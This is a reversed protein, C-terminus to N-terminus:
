DEDDSGDTVYKDNGSVVVSFTGGTEALRGFFEGLSSSETLVRDAALGPGGDRPLLRDAAVGYFSALRQLRPVSIAREGREYAGLVSAKFEQGSATEVDRLTLRRQRRVAKLQDGVKQGYERLDAM